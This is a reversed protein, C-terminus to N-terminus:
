EEPLLVKIKVLENAKKMINEKNIINSYRKIHMQTIGLQQAVQEPPVGYAYMIGACVNRFDQASYEPVDAKIAIKRMMLHIYQTNLPRKSKNYFLYENKERSALYKELIAFVDPPIFRTEKKKKLTLYVGEPDAIIDQPKLACVETSRLGVRCFLVLITYAMIDDQAAELMRDVDEISVPRVAEENSLFKAVYKYFFNDFTIPVKWEEKFQFKNKMIFDAFKHLEKMKKQLTTVKMQNEKIKLLLWNYYQDVDNETIELFDKQSLDLFENIDGFYNEQSVSKNKFHTIFIPWIEKETISSIYISPDRM